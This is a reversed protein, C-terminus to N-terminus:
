ISTTLISNNPLLQILYKYWFNDKL